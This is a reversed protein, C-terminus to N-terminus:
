TIVRAYRFQGNLPDYYNEVAISPAEHTVGSCSWQLKVQSPLPSPCQIYATVSIQTQMVDASDAYATLARPEVRGDYTTFDGWTVATSKPDRKFSPAVGIKM